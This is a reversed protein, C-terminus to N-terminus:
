LLSVVTAQRGALDRERRFSCYQAHCITCQTYKNYINGTLIGFKKLQLEIFLKNDFYLTNNRKIFAKSAYEYSVFHNLFETGVEYCCSGASAAFLVEINQVLSGEQLMEKLAQLVVGQVAGRWGAHVIGVRQQLQDYLIVAVCDATLVVLGCHKLDTILFDGQQEFLSYSEKVTSQRVFLGNIGHVQQLVVLKKLSMKEVIHQLASSFAARKIDQM